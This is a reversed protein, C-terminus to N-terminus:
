QNFIENVYHAVEPFQTYGDRDCFHGDHNITIFKSNLKRSLNESLEYPVVRDNTAVVSVINPVQAQLKDFDIDTHQIYEDIKNLEPIVEYFGAVLIIGKVNIDGDYQSLYNLLTVVGLSHAVIVNEGSSLDVENRLTENWDKLVPNSANPFDLIKSQVGQFQETLWKFWHKHSNANYGHAIYLYKDM